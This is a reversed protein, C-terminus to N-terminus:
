LCSVVEIVALALGGMSGVDIFAVVCFSLFVNLHKIAPGQQDWCPLVCKANWLLEEQLRSFSQFTLMEFLFMQSGLEIPLVICLTHLSTSALPLFIRPIRKHVEWLLQHAARGVEQM